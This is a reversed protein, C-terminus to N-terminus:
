RAFEQIGAERLIRSVYDEKTKEVYLAETMGVMLVERICVLPYRLRRMRRAIRIDVHNWDPNERIVSWLHSQYEKVLEIYENM